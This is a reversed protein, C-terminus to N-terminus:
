LKEEECAPAAYGILECVVGHFNTLTRKQLDDSFEHDYVITPVFSPYPEAIKRTLREAELQLQTGLGGNFCQLVENHDVEVHAACLKGNDEPYPFSMQCGVFAMKADPQGTLLYLTCSQIINGICEAEGHQCIFSEGGNVSQM